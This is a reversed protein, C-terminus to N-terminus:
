SGQNGVIIKDATIDDGADPAVWTIVIRRLFLLYQGINTIWAALPGPICPAGGMKM